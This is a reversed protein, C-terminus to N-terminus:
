KRELSDEFSHFSDKGKWHIKLLIFTTWSGKHPLEIWCLDLDISLAGGAQAQASWRHACVNPPCPDCAAYHKVTISLSSGRAMPFATPAPIVWNGKVPFMNPINFFFFISPASRLDSRHGEAGRMRKLKKKGLLELSSKDESATDRDSHKWSWAQRGSCQLSWATQSVHFSHM